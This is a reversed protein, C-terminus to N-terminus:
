LQAHPGFVEYHIRSSCVGLNELETKAFKMFGIPGCLYFHGTQKPLEIQSFNILGTSQNERLQSQKTERLWTHHSWQNQECLTATQLAFSHQEQNECAHLFTVPHPYKIDSKFELMSQMPTIGVGASILVVPSQKDTFYFDGVPAHLDVVDGVNLHDHLFNSVIGNHEGLERKVSIRYSRGNPKDSLSYQRIETHEFQENSIEIGLYQGPKFDAVAQEDVPIFVFSTVLKSEPTKSALRFARKGQWGGLKNANEAYISNEKNIFIDALVGYATTWADEIEPTFDAGLLERFTEILHLGVIDYHHAQIHFSTHKNAIREVASKLASLNDINKAYALIAEFLAVKQRGTHQNSMNFIHKLEPNERFMRNYFHETIASGGQEIIVSTSKVIDIHQKTLM